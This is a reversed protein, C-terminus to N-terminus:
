AHGAPITQAMGSTKEKKLTQSVQTLCLRRDSYPGDRSQPMKWSAHYESGRAKM